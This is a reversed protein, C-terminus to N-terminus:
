TVKQQNKEIQNQLNIEEVKTPSYRLKMDQEIEQLYGAKAEDEKLEKYIRQIVILSWVRNAEDENPTEGFLLSNRNYTEFFEEKSMEPESNRKLRKRKGFNKVLNYTSNIDAKTPTEGDFLSNNRVYTEVFEKKRLRKPKSRQIQPITNM